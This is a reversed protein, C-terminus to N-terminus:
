SEHKIVLLGNNFPRIDVPRWEPCEDKIAEELEPYLLIDHLVILKAKDKHRCLEQTLHDRTHVTDIFLLDCPEIEVELSSGLIFRFDVGNEAAQKELLEINPCPEIDYSRLKRCGDLFASTSYGNRVGFEVVDLGKSLDRLYELHEIIDVCGDKLM